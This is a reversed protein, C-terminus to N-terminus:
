PTAAALLAEYEDEGGARTRRLAPGVANGIEDAVAQFDRDYVLVSAGAHQVIGALDGATLRPNLAVLVAGAFPVGYHSELLVHTNPALVAVRDGDNVDLARLAGALRLARDLFQSYTFRRDEDIVAVRDAFVRGARALFAVPTLPEYSMTNM